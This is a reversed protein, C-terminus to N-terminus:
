FLAILGWIISIAAWIYNTWSPWKMVQGLAILVGLVIPGGASMMMEYAM